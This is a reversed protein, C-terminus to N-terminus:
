EVSTDNNKLMIGWYMSADTGDQSSNSFVTATSITSKCECGNMSLWKLKKMITSDAVGLHQKRSGFLHFGSLAM